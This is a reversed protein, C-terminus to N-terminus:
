KNTNKSKNIKIFSKIKSKLYLFKMLLYFIRKFNFFLLIVSTKINMFIFQDKMSKLIQKQEIEYFEKKTFRDTKKIREFEKTSAYSFEFYGFPSVASDFTNHAEKLFLALCEDLYYLSYHELVKIDFDVKSILNLNFRNNKIANKSYVNCIIAGLQSGSSLQIKTIENSNFLKDQNYPRDISSQGANSIFKYSFFVAGLNNNKQFIEEVKEICNSYIEDGPFLFKIYEYKSEMFKDLCRNWNGTRGLNKENHFIKINDHKDCYSNVIEVTNDTSCNDFVWTETKITQKICSDLSNKIYKCGNFVPICILTKM